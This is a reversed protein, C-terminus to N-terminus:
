PEIRYVISANWNHTSANAGSHICIINALTNGSSQSGALTTYPVESAPMFTQSVPPITFTLSGAASPLGAACQGSTSGQGSDITFTEAAASANSIQIGYIRSFPAIGTTAPVIPLMAFDEAGTGTSDAQVGTIFGAYQPPIGGVPYLSGTYTVDLKCSTNFGLVKVRMFPFAGTAYRIFYTGASVTQQGNGIVQVFPTFSTGDISVDLSVLIATSTCSANYQRVFLLHSSQGINRVPVSGAPVASIGSYITQVITASGQGFVSATLSLLLLLKKM